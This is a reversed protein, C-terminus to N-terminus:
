FLGYISTLEYIEPVNFFLTKLGDRFEHSIRRPADFVDSTDFDEQKLADLAARQDRDSLVGVFEDYANMITLAPESASGGLRLLVDALVELPPRCMFARLCRICAQEQGSCREGPTGQAFGLHCAYCSLMGSVYILKRSMRLKFNRLAMGGNGRTRAKYAFDVAM